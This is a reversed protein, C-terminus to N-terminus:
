PSPSRPGPRLRAVDRAPSVGFQRAYERSFQSASEYGVDFAVSAKWLCIRRCSARCRRSAEGPA